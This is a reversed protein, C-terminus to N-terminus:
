EENGREMWGRAIVLRSEVELNAQEPWKMYLSKQVVHPRKHNKESLRINELNIWTIVRMLVKDRKIAAHYKKPHSYWM